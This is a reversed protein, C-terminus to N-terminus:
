DLLRRSVIRHPEWNTPSGLPLRMSIDKKALLMLCSLDGLGRHPLTTKIAELSTATPSNYDCDEPTHLFAPPQVGSDNWNLSSLPLPDNSLDGDEYFDGAYYHHNESDTISSYHQDLPINLSPSNADLPRYDYRAANLGGVASLPGYSEAVGGQLNDWGGSNRHQDGQRSLLALSLAKSADLIQVEEDVSLYSSDEM